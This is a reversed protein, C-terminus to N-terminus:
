SGVEPPAPLPRFRANWGIDDDAEGDLWYEEGDSCLVEGMGVQYDDAPRWLAKEYASIASRLAIKQYDNAASWLVHCAAEIAKERIENTM